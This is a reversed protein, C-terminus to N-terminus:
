AWNKPDGTALFTILVDGGNDKTRAQVCPASQTSSCDPLLGTFFTTNGYTVMGSTNPVPTFQKTSAYCIQWTSAGPHGSAQVASKFIELSASFVANGIPTGSQTLLDFSVLDSTQSYSGCTFSQG